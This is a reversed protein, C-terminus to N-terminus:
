LNQSYFYPMENQLLIKGVTVEKFTGDGENTLSLTVLKIKNRLGKIFKFHFYLLHINVCSNPEGTNYSKSIRLVWFLVVIM